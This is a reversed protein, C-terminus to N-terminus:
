GVATPVLANRRMLEAKILLEGDSSWIESDEFYHGDVIAAIRSVLLACAVDDYSGEPAAFTVRGGLLTTAPPEDLPTVGGQLFERVARMHNPPYWSDIMAAVAARGPAHRRVPEIWVADWGPMPASGDPETTPRFVFQRAVPPLSGSSSSLQAYVEAPFVPPPRGDAPAQAGRDSSFFVHAVAFPRAQELVVTSLALEDSAREITVRAQFAGAVAPGLVHFDVSRPVIGSPVCAGSAVQLALAVLYGGTPGDSAWWGIDLEGALRAVDELCDNECSFVDSM